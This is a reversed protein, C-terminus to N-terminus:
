SSRWFSSRLARRGRSAIVSCGASPPFTVTAVIMAAILPGVITFAEALLWVVSAILALCGLLFWSSLGLDRLWGPAAFSVTTSGAGANTDETAMRHLLDECCKTIMARIPHLPPGPRLVIM